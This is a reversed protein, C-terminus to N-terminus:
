SGMFKKYKQCGKNFYVKEKNREIFDHFSDFSWGLQLGLIYSIIKTIFIRNISAQEQTEFYQILSYYSLKDKVSFMNTTSANKVSACKYLFEKM